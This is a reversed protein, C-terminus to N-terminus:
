RDALAWRTKRPRMGMYRMWNEATQRDPFTKPQHNLTSASYVSRLPIVDDKVLRTFGRGQILVAWRERGQALEVAECKKVLLCLRALQVLTLDMLKYEM